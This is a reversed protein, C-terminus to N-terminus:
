RFDSEQEPIFYDPQSYDVHRDMNATPMLWALQTNGVLEFSGQPTSLNAFANREGVTIVFSYPFEGEILRGVYSRNSGLSIEVRDIVPTYTMGIQPVSLTIQEGASWSWMSPSLEVLVANEVTEKYSPIRAPDISGADVPQWGSNAGPPLQTAGGTVQTGTPTTEPPPAPPSGDAPLAAPDQASGDLERDVLLVGLGVVAVTLALFGGLIVRSLIRNGTRGSPGHASEQNTM